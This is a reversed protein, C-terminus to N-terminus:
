HAFVNFVRFRREGPFGKDDNEQQYFHEKRGQEIRPLVVVVHPNVIEDPQPDFVDTLLKKVDLM